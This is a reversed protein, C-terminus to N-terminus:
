VEDNLWDSLEAILRLAQRKDLQVYNTEPRYGRNENSLRQTLQIMRGRRAGGSFGTVSVDDNHESTLPNLEYSM